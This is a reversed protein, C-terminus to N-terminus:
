DPPATSPAADHRAAWARELSEALQLATERVPLEDPWEVTDSWLIKGAPMELLRATVQWGEAHHSVSGEILLNVGLDVAVSEAVDDRGAYPLLTARGILAVDDLQARWLEALLSDALLLDLRGGTAPVEGLIEPPLVALTWTEEELPPMPAEAPRLWWAIMGAVAMLAALIGVRRWRWHRTARSAPRSDPPPATGATAAGAPLREVEAHLRYGRRPVTELLAANGGLQVLAQRLERLVAALGSEFDVVVGESWVARQLTDRDILTGPADLFARLLRAVQPRLTVALDSGERQLRGDVPDFVFAQFRYRRRPTAEALGTVDPESPKM